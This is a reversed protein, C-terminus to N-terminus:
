IEKWNMLHVNYANGNLTLTVQAEFTQTAQASIATIIMTYNPISGSVNVSCGIDNTLAINTATFTPDRELRHLAEELCAEGAYYGEKELQYNYTQASNSFTVESIGLAILLTIASIILLSILAVSACPKNNPSM